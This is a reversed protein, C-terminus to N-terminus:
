IVPPLARPFFDAVVNRFKAGYPGMEMAVPEEPKHFYWQGPLKSGAEFEVRGQNQFKKNKCNKCYIGATKSNKFVDKRSEVIQKFREVLHKFTTCLTSTRTFRYFMMFLGLFKLFCSLPRRTISLYLIECTISTKNKIKFFVIPLFYVLLIHDM